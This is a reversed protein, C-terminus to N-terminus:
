QLHRGLQPVARRLPKGLEDGGEAQDPRDDTTQSKAGLRRGPHDAEVDGRGIPEGGRGREGVGGDRHCPAQRVGEGADRGCGRRQEDGGLQEAGARRDDDKAPQDVRWRRRSLRGRISGSRGTRWNRRWASVAQRKRGKLPETFTDRIDLRGKGRAFPDAVCAGPADLNARFAFSSEMRSKRSALVMARVSLAASAALPRFILLLSLRSSIAWANPSLSQFVSEAMSYASGASGGLAAAGGVGGAASRSTRDPWTPKERLRSSVSCRATAKALWRLCWYAVGS